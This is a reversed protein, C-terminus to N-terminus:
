SKSKTRILSLCFLILLNEVRFVILPIPNCVLSHKGAFILETKVSILVSVNSGQNNIYIPEVSSFDEEQGLMIIPCTHSVIVRYSQMFNYDNHVEGQSETVMFDRALM